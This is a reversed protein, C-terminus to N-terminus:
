SGDIVAEAKLRATPRTIVTKWPKRAAASSPNEEPASLMFNCNQAM